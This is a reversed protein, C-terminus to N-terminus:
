FGYKEQRLRFAREGGEMANKIADCVHPSDIAGETAIRGKSRNVETLYDCHIVLEADGNVVLNADHSTFILQRREKARWLREVLKFPDTKDLDDEPQDILLPEGGQNLLATLLATAQQGASANEFPIYTDQAARYDFVPIDTPAILGLELVAQPSLRAAMRRIEQDKFNAARLKPFDPLGGGTELAPRAEALSLLEDSLAKWAELGDAASACSRFLTDIKETVTIQAGRIQKEFEAKIAGFDQHAKLTARIEQESLSTLENCQKRLLDSRSRLASVWAARTEDLETATDGLASIQIDIASVREQATSLEKSIETMTALRQQVATNQSSATDYRKQHGELRGQWEQVLEEIENRLTSEHEVLAELREITDTLLADAKDRMTGLLDENPTSKLAPVSGRRIRATSAAEILQNLSARVTGILGETWTKERLFLPHQDIVAKDEPSVDTIQQRLLELREKMSALQIEHTARERALGKREVNRQFAKRITAVKGAIENDASSLLAQIPTQIFRLLEATRVSIHSLQKQSYAQVRLLNRVESETAERFGEDGVGLLTRGSESERRVVHPVGDINFTVEVTGTKPRLTESVLRGRRIEYEPLIDGSDGADGAPQDLLAWRLYELITSKGTGRGGILVNMQPNLELEIPGMFTSDSVKLRSIYRTPLSPIEHKIRSQRALCAQRLAEATPSSWKIWTLAHGIHHFDNGRADSTQIVAITRKGWSKDKGDTINFNAKESALGDTYGGVCPMEVYKNAFGPRLLTDDGGNNVNPWVIFRGKLEPYANLRGYVESLLTFGALRVPNAARPHEPVSSPVALAVLAQKVLDLSISSDFILLAQCPIGLTLEVGPFVVLRGSPPTVTGNHDAELQAAQQIYPLMVCDHHDTIAVAQIGRERCAKVFAKAFAQREEENQARHGEWVCDRPTHVQLSCAHFHAGQDM